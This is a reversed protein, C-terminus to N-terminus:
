NSSINVFHNVKVAQIMGVYDHVLEALIYFDADAQAGHVSEVKEEVEAL